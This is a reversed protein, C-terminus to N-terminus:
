LVDGKVEELAGIVAGGAGIAAGDHLEAGGDAEM